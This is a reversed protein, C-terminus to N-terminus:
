TKIIFNSHIEILEDKSIEYSHAKHHCDRCLGILNEIVNKGKGRGNLHHIDVATKGCRECVIWDGIGYGM